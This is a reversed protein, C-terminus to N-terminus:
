LFISIFDFSVYFCFGFFSNGKCAGNTTIVISNLKLANVFWKRLVKARRSIVYVDMEVIWLYRAATVVVAVEATKCVCVCLWRM